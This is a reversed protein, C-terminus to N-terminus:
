SHCHIFFVLVVLWLVNGSLFHDITYLTQKVDCGGYQRGWVFNNQLEKTPPVLMAAM